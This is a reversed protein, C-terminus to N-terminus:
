CMFVPINSGSSVVTAIWRSPLYTGAAICVFAVVTSGNSSTNEIHDMDYRISLSPFSPTTYPHQGVGLTTLCYFLIMLGATGPVLFSQAPSPWFFNARVWVWVRVTRGLAEQELLHLGSTLRLCLHSALILISRTCLPNSQISQIWWAWSLSWHRAGTFVTTFGRTGYYKPFEQSASRSAAERSPSPEM